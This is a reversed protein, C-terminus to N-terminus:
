NTLVSKGECSQQFKCELDTVGAHVVSGNFSNSFGVCRNASDVFGALVSAIDEEDGCVVTVGLLHEVRIRARGVSCM